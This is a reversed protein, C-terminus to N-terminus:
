VPITGVCRFNTTKIDVCFTLNLPANHSNLNLRAIESTWKHGGQITEKCGPCHSPVLFVGPSCYYPGTQQANKRHACANQYTFIRFFKRTGTFNKGIKHNKSIYIHFNQSTKCFFQYTFILIQYIPSQFIKSISALFINKSKKSFRKVKAYATTYYLCFALFVGVVCLLYM